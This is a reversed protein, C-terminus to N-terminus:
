GTASQRIRHQLRPLLPIDAPAWALVPLEQAEVWRIEAHERLELTGDLIEAEYADLCIPRGEVEVVARGLPAGVEIEVALEEQIERVLAQHATEDDSVKGGPLEWFGPMSMAPGRLAVLCSGNRILAAAVVHLAGPPPPGLQSPDSRVSRGVSRPECRCSEALNNLAARWVSAALICGAGVLALTGPREGHQWWAWLPNLVPELLLLLSAEFAPVGRMGRTLCLYALGIQFVGLWLLAAADLAAITPWGSRLAFPLAALACIVNGGVVAPMGAGGGDRELARLGMMTLAWFVGAATAVLNGVLPAPALASSAPLEFFFLAMGGGVLIAGIVDERRVPERLLWPGLLLVYLPATAQLFIASAATTLKNALVFCLMTAAYASAVALIRPERLRGLGRAFALLVLAAIASRFSAVQWGTLATGKIAAGGTSFLLAAALLLLRSTM